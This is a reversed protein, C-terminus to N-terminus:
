RVGFKPIDIKIIHMSYQPIGPVIFNVQSNKTKECIIPTEKKNVNIKSKKAFKTPTVPNQRQQNLIKNPIDKFSEFNFMISKVDL